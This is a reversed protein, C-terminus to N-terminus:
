CGRACTRCPTSRASVIPFCSISPGSRARWVGVDLTDVVNPALPIDRAGARSKPPGINRWADARQRVHLIGAELNVDHWRLGRLESIRMGTYILLSIFPWHRETANNLIAVLEAKTPFEVGARLPARTHAREGGAAKAARSM